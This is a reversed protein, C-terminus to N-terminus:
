SDPWGSVRRSLICESEYFAKFGWFRRKNTDPLEREGYANRKSKKKKKEIEGVAGVRRLSFSAAGTSVLASCMQNINPQTAVCRSWRPALFPKM